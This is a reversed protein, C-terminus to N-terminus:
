GNLWTSKLMKAVDTPKEKALQELADSTNVQTAASGSSKGDKGNRLDAIDTSTSGSFNTDLLLQSRGVQSSHQKMLFVGILGLAGLSFITLAISLNATMEKAGSGNAPLGPATSGQPAAGPGFGPMATVAQPAAFPITEVKLFDGREENYGIAGKVLGAIKAVQDDKLNNCSVSCSLKKIIPNVRVEKVTTVNHDYKVVEKTQAYDSGKSKGSTGATQEGEDGNLQLGGDSTKNGGKDYTEVFSQKGTVVEGNNQPGGVNRQNTEVKSFDMELNVAVVCRGAGFTKDLLDQADRALAKARDREQQSQKSASGTGGEGDEIMATLDNMAGDIVKVNKKDLEPVSFAVLHVISAVQQENLKTGPTLKLNVTATVPKEDGKFFTQEPRAIKIYADAVGDFQRLSETLEGELMQQRLTEQEKATKGSLGDSTTNHPTKIPHKPLGMQALQALAKSRQKPHIVIGDGTVNVKHPIGLNTLQTAVETTDSATLKTTYLDVDKNEASVYMFAGGCVIVMAILGVIGIRMGKGLSNWTDKVKSLAGGQPAAPAGRGATMRSSTRMGTQMGTAM